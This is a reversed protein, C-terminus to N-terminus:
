RSQKSLLASKAMSTMLAILSPAPPDSNSSGVSPLEHLYWSCSLPSVHWLFTLNLLPDQTVPYSDGSFNRGLLAPRTVSVSLGINHDSLLRSPPRSALCENCCTTSKRLDVLSATAACSSTAVITLGRSRVLGFSKALNMRPTFRATLM